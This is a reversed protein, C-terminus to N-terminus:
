LRVNLPTPPEHDNVVGVIETVFLKVIAVPVTVIGVPVVVIEPENVFLPPVNACLLAVTRM